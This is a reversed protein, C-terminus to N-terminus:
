LAQEVEYLNIQVNFNQEECEPVVWSKVLEVKGLSERLEELAVENRNETSITIIQCKKQLVQKMCNIVRKMRKDRIALGDFIALGM